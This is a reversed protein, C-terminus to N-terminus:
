LDDFDTADPIGKINAFYYEKFFGMTVELDALYEQHMGNSTESQELEMYRRYEGKLAQAIISLHKIPITTM